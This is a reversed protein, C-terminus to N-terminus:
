HFVARSRGRGLPLLLSAAVVAAGGTLGMASSYSGTRDVIADCLPSERGKRMLTLFSDKLRASFSSRVECVRKSPEM